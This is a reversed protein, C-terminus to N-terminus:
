RDIDRRRSVRARPRRALFPRPRRPVRAAVKETARSLIPGDRALSVPRARFRPRSLRSRLNHVCQKLEPIAVGGM